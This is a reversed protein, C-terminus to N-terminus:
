VNKEPLRQALEIALWIDKLTCIDNCYSVSKRLNFTASTPLIPAVITLLGDKIDSDQVLKFIIAEYQNHFLDEFKEKWRHGCNPDIKPDGHHFSIFVKHCQTPM